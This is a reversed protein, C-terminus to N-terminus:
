CKLEQNLTVFIRHVRRLELAGPFLTFNVCRNHCSHTLYFVM